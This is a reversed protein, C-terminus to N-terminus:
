KAEKAKQTQYIKKYILSTKLLQKHTGIDVLKGEDLVMIRDAKIVSSIKEAIIFITTNKLEKELAEQVLKESKADLASTSDDLILVKPKGIVGRAISLRQKQGGSYNSSREEVIHNFTDEYTQVFESAQAIKAARNMDKENANKNGHRLNDAITGSFLIAKQLVFSITSRLTTENIDRLNFGGVKIEGNTPDFLRAILQALTTKGSGTAGVIGIMEGSQVSFTIDKLTDNDSKPYKFSVHDFEVSGDIKQTSVDKFIISKKTNLVEGIRGLSIFGRSTWTAFMSGMIIAFLIQSLYSVFSSIKALNEPNEVINSGIFWISIFVGLNGILFFIPMMISFIYGIKKNLDNMENSANSFDKIQNEQQNFSKVVRVGQMNEKAISNVRDIYGQMKGFWKGMPAFVLGSIVVVLVVMAVIVWWLSPITILALILSGILVIPIRLLPALLFGILGNVQNMDNILRVVLNGASFEEINAFSFSQIKTYTEERLDSVVEQAVRSRYYANIIGAVLGLIALALLQLGIKALKNKDNAVIAEMVGQLLRPQYLSAFAMIIVTFISLFVHLKYNKFHKILIRM